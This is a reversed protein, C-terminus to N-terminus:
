KYDIGGDADGIIVLLDAQPETPQSAWYNHHTVFDVGVFAFGIAPIEQLKAKTVRNRHRCKM